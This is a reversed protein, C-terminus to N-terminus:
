PLNNALDSLYRFLRLLVSSYMLLWSCMVVRHVPVCLYLVLRSLLGPWRGQSYCRHPSCSRLGWLLHWVYKEWGFCRRKVGMSLCGCCNKIENLYQVGKCM